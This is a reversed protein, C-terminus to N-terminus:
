YSVEYYDPEIFLPAVHRDSYDDTEPYIFINKAEIRSIFEESAYEMAVPDDLYKLDKGPLAFMEELDYGHMVDDIFVGGFNLTGGYKKRDRQTYAKLDKYGQNKAVTSVWEIFKQIILEVTGTSFLSEVGIEMNSEFLQRWNPNILGSNRWDLRKLVDHVKRLTMKIELIKEYDGAELYKNLNKKSIYTLDKIVNLSEDSIKVDNSEAYELMAEVFDLVADKSKGRNENRLRIPDSLLSIIKETIVHKGDSRRSHEEIKQIIVNGLNRNSNSNIIKLFRQKTLGDNRFDVTIGGHGSSEDKVFQIESDISGLALKSVKEDIAEQGRYVVYYLMVGERLVYNYFLNNGKTRLATCWATGAGLTCSAERTIPLWVQWNDDEFIKQAEKEIESEELYGSSYSTIIALDSPTKYDNIDTSKELNAIRKKSQKFNKMKGVIDRIPEKSTSGESSMYYKAIWVLDPKQLKHPKESAIRLNEIKEPDTLGVLRAVTDQVGEALLRFISENIFLRLQRKTVKM